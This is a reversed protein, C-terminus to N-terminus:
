YIFPFLRYTHKCYDDFENKFQLKLAKEEIRIRIGYCLMCILLVAIPAIVSRLSFAIGLLSLISGTYAPNRIYKYPGTKILHQDDTTQVSLTFAKKLKFVSYDRLIAGGVILFIGLYYFMHPLILQRITNGINDSIFYYSLYISSCYGIIILWVTGNDSESRNNQKNHNQALRSSTFLWILLESIYLFSIAYSSINGEFSKGFKIM